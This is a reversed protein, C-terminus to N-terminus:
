FMSQSYVNSSGRRPRELSYGCDITKLLFLFFLYVGAHGLNAIYFYPIRPYVNCLCTKTINVALMSFDLGGRRRCTRHCLHGQNQSRTSLNRPSLYCGQVEHFVTHSMNKQLPRDIAHQCIRHRDISELLFMGPYFSNQCKLGTFYCIIVQVRDFYIIIAAMYFRNLGALLKTNSIAGLGYKQPPEKQKIDQHKFNKHQQRRIYTKMNETLNLYSLPWRNPFYSSMRGKRYTKM